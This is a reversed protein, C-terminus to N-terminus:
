RVVQLTTEGSDRVDLRGSRPIVICGKSEQGYKAPDVSPGHIYFADRGFMENSEDPKLYSTIPGLHPHAPLWPQLTYMGRPLPGICHQSQADPNNRGEHNGAWGHALEVGDRTMVGSSQSYVLM